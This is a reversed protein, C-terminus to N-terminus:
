GGYRRRENYLELEHYDQDSLAEGDTRRPSRDSYSNPGNYRRIRSHHADACQQAASISRHAHSCSGCVDGRAEYTVM